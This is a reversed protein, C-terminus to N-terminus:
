QSRIRYLRSAYNTWLPDTFYFSGGIPTNTSLPSWMPNALDTSAEVVVSLNTAWSVTFGFQNSQVGPSGSLVLPYPLTWVATPAGDYNTSWGTTGPLYYVTVPDRLFVSSGAPANGLFFAAKLNPCDRFTVSALGLDDFITVSSPIIVSTLSICHAFAGFGISTVGNLITINTLNVCSNFTGAEITTVSAPVTVSTLGCGSFASMGIRTVGTPITVNTLGYCSAFALSGINTVGNPIFVTTLNTCVYFTYDGITAVSTPITVSTLSFCYNFADHGISTVSNPITINTLSFCSLFAGDGISTVGDPITINALTTSGEFANDGINTVNNGM